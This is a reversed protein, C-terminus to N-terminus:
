LGQGHSFTCGLTPNRLIHMVLRQVQCRAERAAPSRWPTTGVVHAYTHPTDTTVPQSLLPRRELRNVAPTNTRSVPEAVSM